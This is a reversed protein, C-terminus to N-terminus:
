ARGATPPHRRAFDVILDAVEEWGPEAIIWHTRASLEQLDTEAPSRKWKEFNARNISAPVTRDKEGAIILMPPRAPNAYDVRTLRNFPSLAVQWFPRGPTPIVYRDYASRQEDPGLGHFFSWSMDDFGATVTRKWSRWSRLVVANARVASLNPLVGRTPAPSIAVGARGWGRDLLLQVFLGGFSHGVLLPPDPCAAVVRSYHEVIEAV